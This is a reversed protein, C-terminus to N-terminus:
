SRRRSKEKKKQRLANGAEKAKKAEVAATAAAKAANAAEAEATAAATEADAAKTKANEAETEANKAETKANEAEEKATKAKAVEATQNITPKKPPPIKVCSYTYTPQRYRRRGYSYYYSGRTKLKKEVKYGSKCACQKTSRYTRTTIANPPCNAQQRRNITFKSFFGEIIDNDNRNAFAETFDLNYTTEGNTIVLRFNEKISFGIKLFKGERVLKEKLKESADTGTM